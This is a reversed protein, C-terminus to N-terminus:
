YCLLLRSQATGLSHVNGLELPDLGYLILDHYGLTSWNM